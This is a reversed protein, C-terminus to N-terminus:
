NRNQIRRLNLHHVHTHIAATVLISLISIHNNYSPKHCKTYEALFKSWLISSSTFKPKLFMSEFDIMLQLVVLRIECIKIIFEM